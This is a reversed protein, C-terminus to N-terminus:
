RVGVLTKQVLLPLLEPLADLKKKGKVRGRGSHFISSGEMWVSGTKKQIKLHVYSAATKAADEYESALTNRGMFKTIGTKQHRLAHKM